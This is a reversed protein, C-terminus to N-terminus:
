PGSPNTAPRRRLRRDCVLRAGVGLRQRHHRVRRLRKSSLRPVADHRSETADAPDALFNAKTQDFRDGWPYKQGRRGGRAAKEWEAETPLRFQRGAVATLWDCYATADDWRVLTVPHDLRERPPSSGSWSYAASNQRFLAEREGDGATVVLPLEYVGPSRHGKENVFRAYDANTVQQVGIHFEDLHVRHAPREDEEGEDSGMLFDGAPITALEPILEVHM